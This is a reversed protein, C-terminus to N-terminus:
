NSNVKQSKGSIESNNTTGEAVYPKVTLNYLPLLFYKYGYNIWLKNM